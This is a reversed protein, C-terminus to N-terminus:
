YRLLVGCFRCCLDGSDIKIKYCRKVAQVINAYRVHLCTKKVHLCTKKSLFVHKKVHLCSSMNKNKECGLMMDEQRRTLFDQIGTLFFIKPKDSQM